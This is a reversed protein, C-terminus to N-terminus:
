PGDRLAVAMTDVTRLRELLHQTRGLRLAWVEGVGHSYNKVPYAVPEASLLRVEPRMFSFLVAGVGQMRSGLPVVTMHHTRWRMGFLRDLARIVERYDFTSAYHVNEHGVSVGHLEMSYATRWRLNKHPPVGFVWDINLSSAASPTAFMEAIAARARGVGFGAIVVVAERLADVRYGSREPSVEVSSVGSEHPAESSPAPRSLPEYTGAEAYFVTLDVAPDRVLRPLLSAIAVNSAVSVDCAVRLPRHLATTMSRLADRVYNGTQGPPAFETTCGLEAWANELDARRAQNAEVNSRYQGVIVRAAMGPINALRRPVGVLRDEFGLFTIILDPESSLTTLRDLAPLGDIVDASTIRRVSVTSM